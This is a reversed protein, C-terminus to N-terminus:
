SLQWVNINKQIHWDSTTGMRTCNRSYDSQGVATKKNGYQIIYAVKKVDAGLHWV